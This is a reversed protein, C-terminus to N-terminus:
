YSAPLGGHALGMRNNRGRQLYAFGSGALARLKPNRPANPTLLRRVGALLDIYMIVAGAAMLGLAPGIGWNPAAQVVWDNVVLPATVLGEEQRSDSTPLYPAAIIVVSILFLLLGIVALRLWRRMYRRSRRSM